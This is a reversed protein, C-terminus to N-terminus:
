QIQEASSVQFVNIIGSPLFGLSSYMSKGSETAQIDVQTCGLEKAKHLCSTTIQQGIGQRRYSQLTAVLYIGGTQDNKFFLATSVPIKEKTALFLFCDDSSLLYQFLPSFLKKGRMLETEVITMWPSLENPHQMLRIALDSDAIPLSPLIKLDHSMDTWAAQPYNRKRILSLISPTTFTPPLLVIEPIIESLVKEELTDLVDQPNDNTLNVNFVLSPWNKHDTKIYTYLPHRNFQSFPSDGILEYFKEMNSQPSHM